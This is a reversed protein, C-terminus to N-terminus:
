KKRSVFSRNSVKFNEQQMIIKRGPRINLAGRQSLQMEQRM